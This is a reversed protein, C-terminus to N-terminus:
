SLSSNKIHFLFANKTIKLPIEHFYTFAFKKSPSLGVKFRQSKKETLLIYHKFLLHTENIYAM